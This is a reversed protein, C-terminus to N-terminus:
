AAELLLRRVVDTRYSFIRDLQRRVLPHAMRGLAGFPLRYRVEDDIRTGDPMETFTHRHIWRAYPGRRQVDEFDFPPNWRTIETRWRMPVGHLRIRYDILAGSRMTIPQPSLIEFGLEPPTIRGLNAAEAFFAFVRAQPLPITLTSTLVRESTNPM